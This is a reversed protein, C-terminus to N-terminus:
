QEETSAVIQIKHIKRGHKLLSAANQFGKACGPCGLTVDLHKRIHTLICDYNTPHFSCIHCHYDKGGDSRNICEPCADTTIALEPVIVIPCSSSTSSTSPGEPTPVLTPVIHCHKPINQPAEQPDSVMTTSKDARDDGTNEAMSTTVGVILITSPPPALHTSTYVHPPQVTQRMPPPSWLSIEALLNIIGAAPSGLLAVKIQQM